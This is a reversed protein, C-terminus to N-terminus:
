MTSPTKMRRAARTPRPGAAVCRSSAGHWSGPRQIRLTEGAQGARLGFGGGALVALHVWFQGILMVDVGHDLAPVHFV